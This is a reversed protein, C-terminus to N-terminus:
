IKLFAKAYNVTLNHLTSFAAIPPDKELRREGAATKKGRSALTIQKREIKGSIYCAVLLLHM